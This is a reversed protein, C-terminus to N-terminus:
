CICLQALSLPKRLFVFPNRESSSLAPLAKYSDGPCTTLICRIPRVQSQKAQLHRLHEKDMLHQLKLTHVRVMVLLAERRLLAIVVHDPLECPHTNKEKDPRPSCCCAKDGWILMQLPDTHM